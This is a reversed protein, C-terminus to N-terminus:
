TPTGPVPVTEALAEYGQGSAVMCTVGSPMTVTITWTGTKESAFVEMVTNNAAIGIGHRTEGYKAALVSVVKDRTACQGAGEASQATATQSALILAAAALPLASLRTSLLRSM